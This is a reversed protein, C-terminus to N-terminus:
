IELIYPLTAINKDSIDPTWNYSEACFVVYANLEKIGNRDIRHSTTFRHERETLCDNLRPAM